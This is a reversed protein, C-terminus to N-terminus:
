GILGHTTHVNTRKAKCTGRRRANQPFEIVFVDLVSADLQKAITRQNQGGRREIVTADIGATGPVREAVNRDVHRHQHVTLPTSGGPCCVGWLTSIGLM